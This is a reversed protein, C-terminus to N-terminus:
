GFCEDVLCAYMMIGSVSKLAKRDILRGTLQRLEGTDVACLARAGAVTVGASTLMGTWLVRM